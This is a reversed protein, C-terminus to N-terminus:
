KKGIDRCPQGERCVFGGSGGKNPQCVQVPGGGHQRDSPLCLRAVQAHATTPGSSMIATTAGVAGLAVIALVLFIKTKM